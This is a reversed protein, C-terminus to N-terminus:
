PCTLVYRFNPHQLWHAVNKKQGTFFNDVVIVEHGEMMLKDVLHSGVFGAGGTVLIKKRQHDPLTETLMIHPSTATPISQRSLILRDELIRQEADNFHTKIVFGSDRSRLIKTERKPIVGIGKRADAEEVYAESNEAGEQEEVDEPEEAPHTQSEKLDSEEKTHAAEIQKQLKTDDNYLIRSPLNSSVSEKNAPKLAGIANVGQLRIEWPKLESRQAPFSMQDFGLNQVLIMPLLVYGFMVGMSLIIFSQKSFFAQNTSTGNRTGNFGYNNNSTSGGNGRRETSSSSSSPARPQFSRPPYLSPTTARHSLSSMTLSSRAISRAPVLLLDHSSFSRLLTGFDSFDFDKFMSYV